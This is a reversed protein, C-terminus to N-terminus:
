SVGVFNDMILNRRWQPTTFLERTTLALFIETTSQLRISRFTRINGWSEAERGRPYLKFFKMNSSIEVERWLFEMPFKPFGILVELVGRLNEWVISHVILLVDFKWGSFIWEGYTKKPCSSCNQLSYSPANHISARSTTQGHGCVGWECRRLSMSLWIVILPFWHNLVVGMKAIHTIHQVWPEFIINDCYPELAYKM